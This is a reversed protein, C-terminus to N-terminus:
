TQVPLRTIKVTFSLQGAWVEIEDCSESSWTILRFWVENFSVTWTDTNEDYVGEPELGTDTNGELVLFYPVVFSPDIEPWPCYVTGNEFQIMISWYDTPLTLCHHIAFCYVDQENIPWFGNETVADILSADHIEYTGCYEGESKELVIGWGELHKKGRTPPPLWRGSYGVDEVVLYDKPSVGYSQLGVDEPSGLPGKGIWIHYDFTEPEPSPSGPNVPKKAWGTAGIMSSLVLLVM